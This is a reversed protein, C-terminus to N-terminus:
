KICKMAEQDLFYSKLVKTYIYIYIYIINRPIKEKGGSIISSLIEFKLLRRQLSQLVM